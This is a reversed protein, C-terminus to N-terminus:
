TLSGLGVTWRMEGQLGRSLMVTDGRNLAYEAAGPIVEMVDICGTYNVETYILSSFNHNARLSTKVGM